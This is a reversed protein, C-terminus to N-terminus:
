VEEGTSSPRCTFFGVTESFISRWNYTRSDVECLVRFTSDPHSHSESPCSSGSHIERGPTLLLSQRETVPDYGRTQDTSTTKVPSVQTGGGLCSEPLDMMSPRDMGIPVLDRHSKPDRKGTETVQKKTVRSM